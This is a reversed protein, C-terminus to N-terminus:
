NLVVRRKLPSHNIATSAFGSRKKGGKLNQSVRLNIRKRKRFFVGMKKWKQFIM